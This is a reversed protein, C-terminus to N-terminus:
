SQQLLWVFLMTRRLINFFRTAKSSLLNVNTIRLTLPPEWIIYLMLGSLQTGGEGVQLQRPQDQMTKYYNILILTAM